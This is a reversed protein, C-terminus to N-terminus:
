KEEEGVEKEGDHAFIRTLMTTICTITLLAFGAIMPPFAWWIPINLVMTCEQCSKYDLCGYFLRWTILAAIFLFILDGIVELTRNILPPAKATILDVIVNGNQFHCYPLFFTVCVAMGLKVIEYDGPIPASLTVRGVVSVVTLLALGTMFIGGIIAFIRCLLGIFARIRLYPTTVYM